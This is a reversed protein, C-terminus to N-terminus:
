VDKSNQRLAELGPLKEGQLYELSAGGGTSVHTMAETCGSAKAASASDGGGVITTADLDAITRALSFTGQSFPEMEFIGMPGNWFVTKAEGLEKAFLERSKPGIDVGMWGEDIVASETVRVEAAIDINQVALHDIPLLFKKEKVKMKEMLDRAYHLKDKEVLSNGVPLGSAKLFTYAMAGGIIFGDVLEGLQRIVEIKDSVKAGGLVAWYPKEPTHLIRDLMEVEKHVLYGIGKNQILSPLRDISAHARHSSGFADNIYVDTYEAWISALESANKTEGEDFRLNELLIIQNNKLGALLGKPADSAPEEVLIVEASLLQGLHQAVPELSFKDRDAESKPRGLHSALVLHAGNELAYKITPLAAQIRKDDTIKGDKMPVNFDVRIFVNKGSLDFEEISRIGKLGVSM